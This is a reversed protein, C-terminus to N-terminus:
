TFSPHFGHANFKSSDGLSVLVGFPRVGDLEHVEILFGVNWGVADDCICADNDVVVRLLVIGVSNADGGAAVEDVIGIFQGGLRGVESRGLDHPVAYNGGWPCSVCASIDFVKIQAGGKVPVFLHSDWDIHYGRFEHLEVVQIGHHFIAVDVRLYM